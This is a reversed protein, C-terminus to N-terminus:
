LTLESSIGAVPIDVQSLAERMPFLKSRYTLWVFFESLFEDNTTNTLALSEAHLGAWSDKPRVM